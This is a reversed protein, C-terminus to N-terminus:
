GNKGGKKRRRKYRNLGIEKFFDYHM